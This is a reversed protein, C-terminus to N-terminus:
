DESNEMPVRRPDVAGSGESPEKQFTQYLDHVIGHCLNHPGRARVHALHQHPLPHLLPEEFALVATDLLRILRGSEGDEQGKRARSLIHEGDLSPLKGPCRTRSMGRETQIQM